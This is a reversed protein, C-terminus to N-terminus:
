CDNSITSRDDNQEEIKIAENELDLVKELMWIEERAFTVKRILCCIWKLNGNSYNALLYELLELDQVHLHVLTTRTDKTGVQIVDLEGFDSTKKDGEIFRLGTVIGVFPVRM